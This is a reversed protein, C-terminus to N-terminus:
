PKMTPKQRFLVIDDTLYVLIVRLALDAMVLGLFLLNLYTTNYKITSAYDNSHVKRLYKIAHLMMAVAYWSLFVNM